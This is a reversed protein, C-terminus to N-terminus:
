PHDHTVIIPIVKRQGPLVVLESPKQPTEGASVSGKCEVGYGAVGGGWPSPEGGGEAWVEQQSACKRGLAQSKSTGPHQRTPRYPGVSGKGWSQGAQAGKGQVAGGAETWLREGGHGYSWAM